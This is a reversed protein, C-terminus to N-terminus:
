LKKSYEKIFDYTLLSPKSQESTGIKRQNIVVKNSDEIKPNYPAKVKKSKRRYKAQCYMYKMLETKQIESNATERKLTELQTLSPTFTKDNYLDLLDANLELKKKSRTIAVYLLNIEEFWKGSIVDNHNEELIKLLARIEAFDGHLRVNDYEMGKAKHVTSLVIDAESKPIDPMRKIYESYRPINSTYKEVIRSATLLEGDSTVTLFNQLSEWSKFIKLNPDKIKNPKGVYLHYLDLMNGFNYGQKGGEFAIKKESKISSVLVDFVGANSRCLHTYPGESIFGITQNNNLGYINPPKYGIALIKKALQATQPGFRFSNTLSYPVFSEFESLADISMRFGYIQQFSDGVLMINSQQNKIIDIIAGNLDQAEDVFIYDFDLKPKSIQFLKMYFDHSVGVNNDYDEKLEFLRNLDRYMNKGLYEWKEFLEKFPLDEIKLYESHLYYNFVELLSSAYITNIENINTINLDKLVDSVKYNSVLKQKYKYGVHKYALAHFTKPLFNGHKISVPYMEREISKNFALYLISKKPDITEVKKLITFTKGSGAVAKVLMRDDNAEIISKQEDTLM